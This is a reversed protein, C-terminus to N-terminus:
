LQRIIYRRASPVQSAIDYGVHRWLASTTTVDAKARQFVFYSGLRHRAHLRSAITSALASKGVGPHGCIWLINPDYEGLNDLFSDVNSLLNERTGELCDSVPVVVDVGKPQLQEM